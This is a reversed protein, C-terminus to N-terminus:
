AMPSSRERRRSSSPVARFIGGGMPPFTSTILDQEMLLCSRRGSVRMQRGGGPDARRTVHSAVVDVQLLFSPSIRLLFM